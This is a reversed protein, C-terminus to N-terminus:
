VDMQDALKKAIVICNGDIAITKLGLEEIVIRLVRSLSGVIKFLTPARV